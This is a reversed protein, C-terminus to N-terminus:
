SQRLFTVTFSSGSGTFASTQALPLGSLYGTGNVAEIGSFTGLAATVGYITAECALTGTYVSGFDATGFNALADQNPGLPTVEVIVEASSLPVSSWPDWLNSSFGHTGDTLGIGFEESGNAATSEYRVTVSVQDGPHVTISPINVRGSPFFEYFPTYSATQQGDINNCQAYVGAQELEQESNNLDPWGDIGAWFWADASTTPCSVSPQIWSSSVQTVSGNGCAIAYGGAWGVSSNQVAPCSSGHVGTVLLLTVYVVCYGGTACSASLIVPNSTSGSCSAGALCGGSVNWGWFIYPAYVTGSLNYWFTGGLLGSIPILVGSQNQCVVTGNLTIQSHYCTFNGYLPPTLVQYTVGVVCHQGSPCSAYLEVPNSLSSPYCPSQSQLCGGNVIWGWTQNGSVPLGALQFSFSGGGPGSLQYIHARQNNCVTVGNLTITASLCTFSGFLGSQLLPGDSAPVVRSVVSSLPQAGVLLNGMGMWAIVAVMAIAVVGAPRAFRAVVRSSRARGEETKGVDLGLV